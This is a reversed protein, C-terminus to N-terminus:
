ADTETIHMLAAGEAVQAGIAVAVDVVGSVPALLTHEMKMAEIVAVRQGKEVKDGSDVFVALLKGHMPARVVGDDAGHDHDTEGEDMRLITQRGRHLVYVADGDAVVRADPAPGNGDASVAFGRRDYAVRAVLRVGDILVPFPVTRETSFDFADNAAWPSSAADANGSLRTRESEVLHAVGAAAAARDFGDGRKTLADLHRDIFGTDFNEARFDPARCLAALFAANSRPGAVVTRDLADALRDLATIRDGAHAIIKAIMPDYFPSVEDGAEVGSDIRIGEGTPLELAVLRGTSPLFGREPDEAYLRAEVAHGKLPVASQALPLPEGAAIRFQWEVLDLGTVAETVPHEVQLRTNMELFYFDQKKGNTGVLFEITGTSDYGVKRSLAIAAAHM